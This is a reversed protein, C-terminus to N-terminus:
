PATGFGVHVLAHVGAAPVPPPPPLPQVAPQGAGHSIVLQYPLGARGEARRLRQAQAPVRDSTSAATKRASFYIAIQTEASCLMADLGGMTAHDYQVFNWETTIMNARPQLILIGRVDDFGNAVYYEHYFAPSLQTFGHNVYNNAPSIHIARGGPRLMDATNRMGQRVDFVHEMTGGDIIWGFRGKLEPPVPLNLDAVIEAGEYDSVDLTELKGLGMLRVFRAFDIYETPAPPDTMGAPDPQLGVAAFMRLAGEFGINMSQIGYGLVPGEFPARVHEM